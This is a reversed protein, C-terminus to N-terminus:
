SKRRLYGREFDNLRKLPVSEFTISELYVIKPIDIPDSRKLISSVQRPAKQMYNNMTRQAKQMSPFSVMNMLTQSLLSAPIILRVIDDISDVFIILM